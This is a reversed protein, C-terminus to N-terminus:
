AEDATAPEEPPAQVLGYKVKIRDLKELMPGSFIWLFFATAFAFIVDFPLAVIYATLFMPWTPNANYALVM